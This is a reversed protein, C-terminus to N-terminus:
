PYNFGKLNLEEATATIFINKKNIDGEDVKMYCVL